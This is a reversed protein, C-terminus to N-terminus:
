LYQNTVFQNLDPNRDYQHILCYPLNSLNLEKKEYRKNNGLTGVQLCFDSNIDIKDTLLNNHIIFNLSSQDTFHQTDGAQSILWNLMILSKVPQHKGAIIGVNGITKNKIWDWFIEGYGEHINKHGWPEDEYKICESAILVEKTLNNTLWESPNSQFVVDRVDTTIIHNWERQDNQLFWWIDILRKMHPHGVLEGKYCEWGNSRLYEFTEGPLNYCIMVKDGDFGSRNLSEVYIKIKDPMYNAVASIILDKM